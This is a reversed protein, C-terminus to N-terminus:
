VRADGVFRFRSEPWHRNQAIVGSHSSVLVDRADTDLEIVAAKNLGLTMRQSVTAGSHTTVQVVRAHSEDIPHHVRAAFAPGSLLLLAAACGLLKCHIM